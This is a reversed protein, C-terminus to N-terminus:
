NIPKCVGYFKVCTSSTINTVNLFDTFLERHIHAPSFDCAEKGEQFLQVAKLFTSKFAFDPIFVVVVIRNFLIDSTKSFKFM